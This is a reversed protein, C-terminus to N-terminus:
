SYKIKKGDGYRSVIYELDSIVNKPLNEVIITDGNKAMTIVRDVLSLYNYRRGNPAGDKIVEYYKDGFINEIQRIRYIGIKNKRYPM